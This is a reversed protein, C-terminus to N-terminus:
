EDHIEVDSIKPATNSALQTAFLTYFTTIQQQWLFICRDEAGGIFVSTAHADACEGGKLCGQLRGGVVFVGM